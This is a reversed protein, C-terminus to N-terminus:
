QPVPQEEQNLSATYLTIIM